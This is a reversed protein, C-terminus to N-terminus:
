AEIGARAGEPFFQANIEASLTKLRQQREADINQWPDTALNVLAQLQTHTM